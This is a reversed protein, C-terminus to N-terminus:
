VKRGEGICTKSSKHVLCVTMSIIQFTHCDRVMCPEENGDVGTARLFFLFCYFPLPLFSPSCWPGHFSYSGNGPSVLEWIVHQCQQPHQPMCWGEVRASIAPPITICAVTICFAKWTLGWLCKRSLHPARSSQESRPRLDKLFSIFSVPSLALPSPSVIYSFLGCSDTM